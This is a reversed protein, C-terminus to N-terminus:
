IRSVVDFSLFGVGSVQEKVEVCARCMHGWIVCVCM